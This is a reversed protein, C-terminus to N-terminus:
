RELRSTSRQTQLRHLVEREAAIERQTRFGLWRFVPLPPCWGRVAHHLLFGMQTAFFVAWGSVRGERLLDRAALTASLGGLIAFNAMLARDVDWETEIAELRADIAAPGGQQVHDLAARTGEDICAQQAPSTHDRVRDVAPPTWEIMGNM